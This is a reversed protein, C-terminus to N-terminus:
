NYWDLIWLAGDPGVKADVPGFWPDTSAVLNWGDRAVFGSGRARALRHAGAARDARLRVGRPELIREPLQPRTCRAAPRPRSDVTGDMQRFDAVIPDGSTTKSGRAGVGHWGRGDRLLPKPIAMHVLHQNNATSCFVDGTESFGLGWTNNSTPTIVRLRGRAARRRSKLRISNSGFLHM